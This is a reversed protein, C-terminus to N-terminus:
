RKALLLQGADRLKGRLADALGALLPPLTVTLVVASDGVDVTGSVTQGLSRAEFIMRDGEWREDLKMLAGGPVSGILRAFGGAIRRRAEAAGLDHSISITMPQTM